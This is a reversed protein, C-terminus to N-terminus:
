RGFECADCDPDFSAVNWPTDRVGNQAAIGQSMGRLTTRGKM